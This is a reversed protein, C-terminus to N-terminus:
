KKDVELKVKKILLKTPTYISVVDDETFDFFDGYDGKQRWDFLDSYVKGLETEIKQTKIYHLFFQTKIGAHTKTYIEDKVM